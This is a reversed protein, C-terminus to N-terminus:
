KKLKTIWDSVWSWLSSDTYQSTPTIKNFVLPKEKVKSYIDILLEEPISEGDSTNRSNRIYQALTMKNKVAPNHMDTNLMIIGFALVYVTDPNKFISTPNCVFYRDAFFLIFKTIVSFHAPFHIYDLLHTLGDLVTKNAFDFTSFYKALMGPMKSDILSLHIGRAVRSVQPERLFQITLREVTNPHANQMGPIVTPNANFAMIDDARTLYRQHYREKWRRKEKEKEKEKAKDKEDDILYGYDYMYMHRWIVDEDNLKYLARCSFSLNLFDGRQLYCGVLALIAHPLNVLQMNQSGEM